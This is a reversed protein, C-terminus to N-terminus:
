TVSTIIKPPRFRSLVCNIAWEHSGTKIPKVIPSYHSCDIVCKMESQKATRIVNHYHGIM